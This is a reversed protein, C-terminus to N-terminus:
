ILDVLTSKELSAPHSRIPASIDLCLDKLGDSANSLWNLNLDVVLIIESSLHSSIATSPAPPAHFVGLVLLKETLM